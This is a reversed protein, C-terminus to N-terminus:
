DLFDEEERREAFALIYGNWRADRAELETCVGFGEGGGEGGKLCFPFVGDFGVANGIKITLARLGAM